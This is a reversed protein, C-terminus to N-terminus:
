GVSELTQNRLFKVVDELLYIFKKGVRRGRLKGSERYYAVTERPKRSRIKLFRVVEAENLAFPAPMTGGNGDDMFIGHKEIDLEIGNESM